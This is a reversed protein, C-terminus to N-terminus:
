KIKGYSIVSGVVRFIYGQYVVKRSFSTMVVATGVNWGKSFAVHPEFLNFSAFNLPADCNYRDRICMESGM